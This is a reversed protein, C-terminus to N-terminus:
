SAKYPTSPTLRPMTATIPPPLSKHPYQDAMHLRERVNVTEKLTSQHTAIERRLNALQKDLDAIQAEIAAITDKIQGEKRHADQVIEEVSVKVAGLTVRVVRTVLAMNPDAPLSRMLQIADDIGFRREVAAVGPTLAEPEVEQADSRDKDPAVPTPVGEVSATEAAAPAPAAEAAAAAEGAPADAAAEPPAAEAAKDDAAQEEAQDVIVKPQDVKKGSQKRSFFAM